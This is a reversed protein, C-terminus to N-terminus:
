VSGVKRNTFNRNQSYIRAKQRLKSVYKKGITPVLKRSNMNCRGGKEKLKPKSTALMNTDTKNSIVIISLKYNKKNRHIDEHCLIM